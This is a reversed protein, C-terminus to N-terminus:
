FLPFSVIENINSPTVFILNTIPILKRRQAQREEEFPIEELHKMRQAQNRKPLIVKPM